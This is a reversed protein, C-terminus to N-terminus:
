EFKIGDRLSVYSGLVRELVLVVFWGTILACYGVRVAVTAGVQVGSLLDELTGGKGVVRTFWRLRKRGEHDGLPTSPYAGTIKWASTFGISVELSTEEPYLLNL